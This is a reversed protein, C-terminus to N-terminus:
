LEGPTSGSIDSARTSQLPPPEHARNSGGSLAPARTPLGTLFLPVRGRGRTQKTDGSDSGKSISRKLRALSSYTCRFVLNIRTWAIYTGLMPKRMPMLASRTSRSPLRSTTTAVRDAMRLRGPPPQRHLRASGARGVARRAPRHSDAASVARHGDARLRSFPIAGDDADGGPAHTTADHRERHTAATRGQRVGTTDPSQRQGHVRRTESRVRDGACACGRM